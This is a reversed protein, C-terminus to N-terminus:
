WACVSHLSPLARAAQLNPRASSLLSLAAVADQHIAELIATSKAVSTGGLWCEVGEGPCALVSGQVEARVKASAAAGARLQPLREGLLRVYNELMSVRWPETAEGRAVADIWDCANVPVEDVYFADPQFAPGSFSSQLAMALVDNGRARAHIAAHRWEHVTAQVNWWPVELAKLPLFMVHRDRDYSAAAYPKAFFFALDFRLGVGDVRQHAPNSRLPWACPEGTGILDGPKPLASPVIRAFRECWVRQEEPTLVSQRPIGDAMAPKNAAKFQANLATIEIPTPAPAIAPPANYAPRAVAEARIGPASACSSQTLLLVLTPPLRLARCCFARPNPIIM